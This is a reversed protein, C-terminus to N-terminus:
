LEKIILVKLNINIIRRLLILKAFASSCSYGEKLYIDHSEALENVTILLKNKLEDPSLSSNDLTFFLVPYTEEFNYGISEIKLGKFLEKEGKFLYELTSLTLSKGFRRSRSLFVVM